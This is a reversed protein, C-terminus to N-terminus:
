IHDHYENLVKDLEDYGELSGYRETIEEHFGTAIDYIHEEALLDPYRNFFRGAIPAIKEVWEPSYSEPNDRDVAGNDYLIDHMLLCAIAKSQNPGPEFAVKKFIGTVIEM